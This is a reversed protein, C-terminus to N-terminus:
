PNKHTIGVWACYDKYLQEAKPGIRPSFYHNFDFCIFRDVFPAAGEIQRALIEMTTPEAEFDESLPSTRHFVECNGWIQIDLERAASAIPALDHPIRAIQNTTGGVGDQWAIIDVKAKALMSKFYQRLMWTPLSKAMGPRPTTFPSIMVKLEPKEARAAEAIAGYFAGMSGPLSLTNDEYPIYLGRFSTYEKFRRVLETTYAAVKVREKALFLPNLKKLYWGEEDLLTGIFVQMKLEDAVQLILEVAPTLDVGSSKSYQPIVIRMGAARMAELEGRWFELSNDNDSEWIQLFAGTIRPRMSTTALEVDATEAVAEDTADNGTVVVHGADFPGASASILTVFLFMAIYAFTAACSRIKM